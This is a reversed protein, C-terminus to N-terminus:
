GQDTSIALTRECCQGEPAGRTGVAFLNGGGASGVAELTNDTIRDGALGPQGPDPSKVITWVSGNFQETLTSINGVDGQTQGVAWADTSSLVQVSNLLSGEKGSTPVTVRIWSTGNWHLLGPVNLNTKDVDAAFGSAWVDDAGDASVGTLHNLGSSTIDPVSVISWKTGNWHATLTNSGGDEFSGVAWVDDPSIATIASAIGGSDDAPSPAATWTTGNWHEFLLQIEDLQESVDWGAAWLDNPGTGAIATLMDGDGPIGTAPNPSPVISWSTGNWHEILTLGASTGVAWADTPSLDDVGTLTAQQGTPEPVMVRTWTTGNWHEALPQDLADTNSFTGVAWAEDPGSASM